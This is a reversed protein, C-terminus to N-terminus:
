APESSACRRLTPIRVEATVPVHVYAHAVPPPPSARLREWANVVVPYLDATLRLEGMAVRVDLYLVAAVRAAGDRTRARAAGLSMPRAEARADGGLAAAVLSAMRPAREDGRPAEVDSTLASAVVLVARPAPGLDRAVARASAM